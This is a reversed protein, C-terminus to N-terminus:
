TLAMLSAFCEFPAGLAKLAAVTADIIEPGIGDGPILTVTYTVPTTSRQAGTVAGVTRVALTPQHAAVRGM